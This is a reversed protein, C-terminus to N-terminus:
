GMINTEPTITAAHKQPNSARGYTEPGLMRTLKNGLKNKDIATPVTKCRKNLKLLDLFCYGRTSHNINRKIEKMEKVKQLFSVTEIMNVNVYNHNEFYLENFNLKIEINQYFPFYFLM